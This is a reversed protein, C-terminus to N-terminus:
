IATLWIYGVSLIWPTHTNSSSSLLGCRTCGAKMETRGDIEELTLFWEYIVDAYNHYKPIRGRIWLVNICAKGERLASTM